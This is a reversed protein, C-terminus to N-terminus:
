KPLYIHEAALIAQYGECIAMYPKWAGPHQFARLKYVNGM